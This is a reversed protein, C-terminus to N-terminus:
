SASPLLITFTTGVNKKSQVEMSGHNIEVIRKAISLGLGFGQPRNESKGRFFRNFINEIDKKEIGYGQDTVKIFVGEQTKGSNVSVTTKEPSYKVANDLLIVILQKISEKDALCIARESNDQIVINKEKTLPTIEKVALSIVDKLDFKKFKINGNPKQYQAIQLLEDTLAKLKNVEDINEIILEKADKIKFKKDRLAVEMGLKLSTLPTRLEHSADTIFRNQEDVMEKIPKLTRGALLYGLGGAIVLIGGNVLVLIVVVRRRAEEILEPDVIKIQAVPVQFHIGPPLFNGELLRREINIRQARAYRNIENSWFNFIVVSFSVSIAMIIVLYWVTLKIRASKFM